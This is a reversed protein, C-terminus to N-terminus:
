LASKKCLKSFPLPPDALSGDSIRNAVWRNAADTYHISDWSIYESPNNCPTAYVAVGNKKEKNWCHLSSNGVHKCCYGLPDVFGYKKSETVLSYKASYIDVYVLLSNQLQTRLESIKNKLQRNFEKAVENYSKVCGAEDVNGPNPPYKLLLYPLCGIPGTNHIWFTRAGLEHLKKIAFPFQYVLDPISKRAEDETTTTLAHHIDNQGIDFTYLAKSFDELRSLRYKIKDQAYLESTREKLGEFQLLQVDLSLPNLGSGFLEGNVHQITTGSAAFDAGHQFNAQLADLYASLFPLGLKEAIFDIILRGDCYRGSPKGFFSIGNPYPVRRFAASVCGTDSNSDGFNYIAPIRCEESLGLARKSRPGLSILLIFGIIVVVGIVVVRLRTKLGWTSNFSRSVPNSWNMM